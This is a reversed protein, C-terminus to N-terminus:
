SAKERLGRCVEDEVVFHMDVEIGLPPDHNNGATTFLRDVIKGFGGDEEMTDPHTEDTELVLM